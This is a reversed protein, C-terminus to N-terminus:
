GTTAPHIPGQLGLINFSCSLGGAHGCSAYQGQGWRTMDSFAFFCCCVFPFFGCFITTLFAFFFSFFFNQFGSSVSSKPGSPLGGGWQFHCRFQCRIQFRFTSGGWLFGSTLVGSSPCGGPVTPCRTAFNPVVPVWRYFYSFAM